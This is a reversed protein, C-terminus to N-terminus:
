YKVVRMVKKRRGQGVEIWYVGPLLENGFQLSEYSGMSYQKLTRGNADRVFVSASQKEASKLKLQFSTTSPNPFVSANWEENSTLINKGTPAATVGSPCPALKIIISRATSQGCNSISSVTVNGSIVSSPYSVTISRTGQGSVITGEVPITWLLSTANASVCSVSYTYERNPCGQTNIVDINGPVSPRLVAVSLSRLASTGCGNSVTLSVSGGTYGLPYNFSISNTGQGTLGIAGAPVIWNYVLGSAYSVSYTAIRSNAGIYECINTPGSILCPVSPANRSLYYTRSSSIGCSNVAQVTVFSSTFNAAFTVAITTDNEGLGNPHVV